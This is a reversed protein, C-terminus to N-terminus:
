DGNLEIFEGFAFDECRLCSRLAHRLPAARATHGLSPQWWVTFLLTPRRTPTSPLQELEVHRIQLFYM